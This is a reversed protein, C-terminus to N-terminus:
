EEDDDEDVLKEDNKAFILRMDEGSEVIPQYSGINDADDESAQYEIGLKFLDFFNIKYEEEKSKKSAIYSLATRFFGDVITPLAKANSIEIHNERALYKQAIECIEDLEKENSEIEILKAKEMKSFRRYYKILM